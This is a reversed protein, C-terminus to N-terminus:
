THCDIHSAGADVELAYLALDLGFFVSFGYQLIMSWALFITIVTWRICNYGFTLQWYKWDLRDSELLLRIIASKFSLIVREECDGSGSHLEQNLTVNAIFDPRMRFVFDKERLANLIAKRDIQKPEGHRFLWKRKAATEWPVRGIYVSAAFMLRSLLPKDFSCTHGLQKVGKWLMENGREVEEPIKYDEPRMNFPKGLNHWFVVIAAQRLSLELISPGREVLYGDKLAQSEAAADGRTCIEGYTLSLDYYVRLDCRDLWLRAHTACNLLSHYHPLTSNPPRELVLLRLLHSYFVGRRLLRAEKVRFPMFFIDGYFYPTRRAYTEGIASRNGMLGSYARAVREQVDKHGESARRLNWGPAFVLFLREGDVQLCSRFTSSMSETGPGHLRGSFLVFSGPAPSSMGTLKDGVIFCLPPPTCLPELPYSELETQWRDVFRRPHVIMGKSLCFQEWSRELPEWVEDDEHSDAFDHRLLERAFDSLLRLHFRADPVDKSHCLQDLEEPSLHGLYLCIAAAAALDVLRTHLQRAEVVVQDHFFDSHCAFALLWDPKSNEM